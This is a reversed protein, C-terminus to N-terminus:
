IRQQNVRIRPSASPMHDNVVRRVGEKLTAGAFNILLGVPRETLRLYTLLQKMHAKLRLAVNLVDGSIEDIEKM